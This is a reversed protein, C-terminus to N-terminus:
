SSGIHIRLLRIKMRPEYLVRAIYREGSFDYIIYLSRTSDVRWVDEGDTLEKALHRVGNKAANNVPDEHYASRQM